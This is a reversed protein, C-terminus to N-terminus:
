GQLNVDEKLPEERPPEFDGQPGQPFSERYIYNGEDMEWLEDSTMDQSVMEESFEDAPGALVATLLLSVAVGIFLGLKM